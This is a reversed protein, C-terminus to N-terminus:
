EINKSQIHGWYKEIMQLIECCVRFQENTTHKWFEGYKEMSKKALEFNSDRIVYAWMELFQHIIFETNQNSTKAWTEVKKIIESDSSLAKNWVLPYNILSDQYNRHWFEFSKKMVDVLDETSLMTQYPNKDRTSM